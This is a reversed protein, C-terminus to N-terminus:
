LHLIGSDLAQILNKQIKYLDKRPKYPIVPLLNTCTCGMWISRDFPVNKLVTCCEDPWYNAMLMSALHKAPGILRVEGVREM